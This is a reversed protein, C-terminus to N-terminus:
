LLVTLCPHPGRLPSRPYSSWSTQRRGSAGVDWPSGEPGPLWSLQEGWRSTESDKQWSGM